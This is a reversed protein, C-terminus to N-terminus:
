TESPDHHTLGARIREMDAPDLHRSADALWRKLATRDGRTDIARAGLDWLGFDDPAGRLGSSAAAEAKVFDGAEFLDDGLHQACKAVAITITTRLHEEDVWEYSDAPVGEFPRGRVLALANTRLVRAAEGGVTDAQRSLRQFTAWDSDVGQVLYGGAVSADPLHEPGVFRRLESLYNHFTKRAVNAHSGTVPWIGGQIQEASRHHNDHLVLYVLLEDVIRRDNRQRMGSIGITGMVDVRPVEELTQTRPEGPSPVAKLSADTEHDPPTSTPGTLVADVAVEVPAQRSRHRLRQVVVVAAAIVVLVLVALWIPFGGGSTTGSGTSASPGAALGTAPLPARGM